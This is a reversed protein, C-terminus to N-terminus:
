KLDSWPPDWEGYFIYELIATLTGEILLFLIIGAVFFGIMAFLPVWIPMMVVGIIWRKKVGSM